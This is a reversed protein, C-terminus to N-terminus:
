TCRLNRTGLEDDVYDTDRLNVVKTLFAQM